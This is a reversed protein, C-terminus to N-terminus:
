GLVPPAQKRISETDLLKAFIRVPNCLEEVNPNSELYELIAKFLLKNNRPSIIPKGADNKEQMLASIAAALEKKIDDEPLDMTGDLLAIFEQATMTSANGGVETRYALALAMALLTIKLMAILELQRAKTLPLHNETMRSLTVMAAALFDSSNVLILLIKAYHEAFKKDILKSQVDEKSKPLTEAAAMYQAAHAFLGCLYAFEARMEQPTPITNMLININDEVPTVGASDSASTDTTIITNGASKGSIIIAAALVPPPIDHFTPSSVAALSAAAALSMTSTAADLAFNKLIADSSMWLALRSTDREVQIREATPLSKLWNKFDDLDLLSTALTAEKQRDLEAIQSPTLSMKWQKEIAEHTRQATEKLSNNWSDLVRMIEDHEWDIEKISLLLPNTNKTRSATTQIPAISKDSTDILMEVTLTFQPPPLMPVGAMIVVKEGQRLSKTITDRNNDSKAREAPSLIETASSVEFSDRADRSSSIFGGEPTTPM